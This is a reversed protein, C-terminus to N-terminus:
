WLARPMRFPLLLPVWRSALRDLDISEHMGEVRHGAVTHDVVNRTYFPTDELTEVVRPLADRAPDGLGSESRIGRRVRWITGRPLPHRPAPSELVSHSGDPNFALALLRDSGEPRATIDYLVATRGDPLPSRSWDWYQFARQMPEDGANTDVYATGEWSLAPTELDVSVRARPAIPRWRHRGADDLPFTVPNLGQCFVRITGRMRRPLPATIENLSLTLTGDEQWTMRSPGIALHTASRDLSDRGRETMCWGKTDGYLACNVAVHHEPDKRGLAAYYPSFVSGVFVIM